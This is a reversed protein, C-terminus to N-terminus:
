AVDRLLRGNGIRRWSHHREFADSRSRHLENGGGSRLEHHDVPWFGDRYLGGDSHAGFGDVGRIRAGRDGARPRPRTAANIHCKAANQHVKRRHQKVPGEHHPLPWRGGGDTSALPEGVAERPSCIVVGGNEDSRPCRPDGSGTRGPVTVVHRVNGRGQPTVTQCHLMVCRADRARRSNTWSGSGEM